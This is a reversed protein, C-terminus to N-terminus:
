PYEKAEGFTDVNGGSLILVITKGRVQSPAQASLENLGALSLAGSGEVVLGEDNQLTQMARKIAAEEVALLNESPILSKLLQYMRESGQSIKVGDAVTNAVPISIARGERFAGIMTAAAVPQVGVVRIEPRSKLVTSIGGILGGGGVPSILLNVQPLQRLIELVVTGQGAIIEADEFPHILVLGRQERIKFAREQAQSFDEGTQIIEAGLKEAKSRKTEPVSVPMVIVCKLGLERAAWAVGLAHNGSSAAIIGHKRQESTLQLIKNLAGRIKFAGIPHDMELKLWVEAHFQNSLIESRVLRTPSLYRGIRTAASEIEQLSVTLAVSSDCAPNLPLSQTPGPILPDGYSWLPFLICLLLSQRSVNLAEGINRYM